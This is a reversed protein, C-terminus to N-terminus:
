VVGAAVLVERAASVGVVREAWLGAERAQDVNMQNDDLFLVSGADVELASVVHHFIEADPKVMGIEFSLFARDFMRLLPWAHAGAEWHVQNTNCLVAVPLSAKTDAVLEEAGPMPGVLWERFETLFAEGTVALEWDAVVGAAFADATCAGREFRRVWDCTLWRRWLEDDDHIGSLLRMREVGGFEALVGGLDFVVVDPRAM